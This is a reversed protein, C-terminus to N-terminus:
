SDFRVHYEKPDDCYMLAKSLPTGCLDIHQSPEGEREVKIKTVGFMKVTAILRKRDCDFLHAIQFGKRIDRKFCAPARKPNAIVNHLHLAQGGENSYALAERLQRKSFEKM